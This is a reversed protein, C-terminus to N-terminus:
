DRPSPSTYLLCVFVWRDPRHAHMSGPCRTPQDTLKPKAQLSPQQGNWVTLQLASDISSSCSNVCRSKTPHINPSNQQSKAMGSVTGTKLNSAEECGQLAYLAVTIAPGVAGLSERQLVVRASAARQLQFVIFHAARCVCFM